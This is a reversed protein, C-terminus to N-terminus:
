VNEYCLSLVRCKKLEPYGFPAYLGLEEHDKQVSHCAPRRVRLDEGRGVKGLMHETAKKM